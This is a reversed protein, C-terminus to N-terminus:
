DFSYDIESSESESETREVTKNMLTKNLTNNIVGSESSQNGNFTGVSFAEIYKDVDSRLGIHLKTDKSIGCFNLQIIELFILLSFFCIIHFFIAFIFTINSIDEGTLKTSITM